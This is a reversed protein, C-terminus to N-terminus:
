AYEGTEILHAWSEASYDTPPVSAPIAECDCVPGDEDFGLHFCALNTHQARAGGCDPCVDPAAQKRERRPLQAGPQRRLWGMFFALLRAPRNPTFSQSFYVCGRNRFTWLYAGSGGAPSDDSRYGIEVNFLKNTM